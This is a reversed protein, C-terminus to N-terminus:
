KVLRMVEIVDLSGVEIDDLSGVEGANAKYLREERVDHKLESFALRSPKRDVTKTKKAATDVGGKGKMGGEVGVSSATAPARDGPSPSGTTAGAAMSPSCSLSVSMVGTSAVLAGAETDTTSLSGGADSSTPAKAPGTCIEGLKLM